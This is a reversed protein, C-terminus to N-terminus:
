ETIGSLKGDTNITQNATLFLTNFIVTGFKLVNDLSLFVYLLLKRLGWCLSGQYYRGAM